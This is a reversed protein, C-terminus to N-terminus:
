INYRNRSLIKGSFGLTNNTYMNGPQLKAKLLCSKERIERM